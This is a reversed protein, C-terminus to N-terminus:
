QSPLAHGEARGPSNGRDNISQLTEKTHAQVYDWDSKKMCTKKPRMHTGVESQERVCIVPDDNKVSPPPPAAQAAAALVILLGVM